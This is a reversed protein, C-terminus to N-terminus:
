HHNRVEGTGIKSIHSQTVDFREAIAKNTMEGEDYLERIEEVEDDTLKARSANEGQMMGADLADQMNDSRNGLYLHDPNVCKKVDCKHLVCEDGPHQDNHIWYSARHASLEEGSYWFSGYGQHKMGAIWIWCGNEDEEWKEDFREKDTM